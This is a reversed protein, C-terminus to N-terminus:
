VGESDAFSWARVPEDARTAGPLTVVFTTGRGHGESSVNITGGHAEVLQKAISLGLGVGDHTRSASPEAQRFREFVHPLFEADIGVGTDSVRIEVASAAVTVALEVVGGAPTFKLANGLLNLFIQELRRHDGLVTADPVDSYRLDIGQSAAVPLVTECVGRLLDCISVRQRDLMLRGAVIRSFDLLDEVLKAQRTANDRISQV